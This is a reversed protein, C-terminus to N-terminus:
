KNIIYINRKGKKRITIFNKSELERIGKILFSRDMDLRKAMEAQTVSVEYEGYTLLLSVIAITRNKLGTDLAKNIVNIIDEKNM